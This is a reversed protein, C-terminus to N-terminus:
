DFWPITATKSLGFTDFTGTKSKEMIESFYIFRHYFQGTSVSALEIFPETLGQKFMTQKYKKIEETSLNKRKILRKLKAKSMTTRIRSLNRYDVKEPIPQIENINCFGVFAGLWNLDQLQTLDAQTGHIRMRRGLKIKYDPFSVGINQSKLEFLGKHFKSYVKNLLENERMEANDPNIKLEIYHEM